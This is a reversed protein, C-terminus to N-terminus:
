PVTIRFSDVADGFTDGANSLVLVSARGSAPGEGFTSGTVVQEYTTGPDGSKVTGSTVVKGRGTIRFVWDVFFVDKLSQGTITPLNGM